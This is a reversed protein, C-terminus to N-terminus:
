IKRIKNWNQQENKDVLIPKDAKIEVPIDIDDIKIKYSTVVKDPTFIPDQSKLLDTSEPVLFNDPTEDVNIPIMIQKTEQGGNGTAVITYTVFFPGFNNYPIQTQIIGDVSPGIPLNITSGTSGGNNYAYSPTIRLSIDANTANYSLTGQQGYNLSAPGTLTVTPPQYVILTITDSDSGGLGTVNITYTTTQTPCVQRNGNINVSGIGPSITASSADGTTTWRLTTCQGRIITSSDLFFTVVPPVYVTLTVSRTITAAPNIVTLTYTITNQPSVSLTGSPAVNGIGQNISISSIAEGTVDWSLTANNGRVIAQPNVSFTANPPLYVFHPPAWREDPFRDDLVVIYGAAACKQVFLNYSAQVTNFTMSGSTDIALSIGSGVPLGALNCIAFWDSRSSVNGGDRSVNIPGNAKPDNFYEQPVLLDSGPRNGPLLLWFTRNPFTQRFNLWDNRIRARRETTDPLSEDIVTICVPISM